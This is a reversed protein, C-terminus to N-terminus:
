AEVALMFSQRIKIVHVVYSITFALDIGMLLTNYLELVIDFPWGWKIPYPKTTTTYHILSMHVIDIQGLYISKKCCFTLYHLLWRILKACITWEMLLLSVCRIPPCILHSVHSPILETRLSTQRRHRHIHLPCTCHVRTRHNRHSSTWNTSFLFKAAMFVLNTNLSCSWQWAQGQHPHLRV